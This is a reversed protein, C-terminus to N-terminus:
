IVAATATLRQCGYHLSLFILAAAVAAVTLSYLVMDRQTLYSYVPEPGPGPNLRKDTIDWQSLAKTFNLRIVDPPLVKVGFYVRKVMRHTSDQVDCRYTGANEEHLPDLTVQDLVPTHWRAFLSDDTTVVGRAYRWSLFFGFRGQAQTVEGLCDLVVAGGTPATLTRLGCQWTLLCRVKHEHCDRPTGGGELLCKEETRLGLGCTASCPGRRVIVESSISQLDELDASPLTPACSVPGSLLCWIGVFLWLWQCRM